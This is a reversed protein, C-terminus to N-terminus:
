GKRWELAALAGKRLLCTDIGLLLFACGEEIRQKALTAEMAFIGFPTGRAKCKRMVEAVAKQVKPHSVQGPLGMSASLDYPGIFVGDIGEVKLIADLNRVATRHEIQVILAVTNNAKTGYDEIKSGFGTSRSIGLGRSGMPPLKAFEVARRAEAASNVQPVIVAECGTDLAKKIWAPDCAPVRVGAPCYPAAAQALRQVDPFGLCGHELDIMLWDYGAEGLVEAVETAPTTVITGVLPPGARLRENLRLKGM